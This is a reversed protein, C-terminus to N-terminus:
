TDMIELKEFSVVISGRGKTTEGGGCQLDLALCLKSDRESIKEGSIWIGESTQVDAAFTAVGSLIL